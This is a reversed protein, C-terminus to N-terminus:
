STARKMMRINKDMVIIQDFGDLILTQQFTRVFEHLYHVEAGGLVFIGPIQLLPEEFETRGSLDRIGKEEGFVIRDISEALAAIRIM